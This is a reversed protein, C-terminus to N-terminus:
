NTSLSPCAACAGAPPMSSPMASPRGLAGIRIGGEVRPTVAALPLHNVDVLSAAGGKMLDILNSGGAVFVAGTQQGLRVAEAVSAPRRYGIDNM